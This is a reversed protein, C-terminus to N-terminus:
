PGGRTGGCAGLTLPHAARDPNEAARRRRPRKLAIGAGTAVLRPGRLVLSPAPPAPAASPPEQASAPRRRGGWRSGPWWPERPWAGAGYSVARSAVVRGVCRKSLDALREVARGLEGRPERGGLALQAGMRSRPLAVAAHEGARGGNLVILPAPGVRAICRPPWRRWRRSRRRSVVLVSADALAAPSGGLAESGADLVLPAHHRACDALAPPGGRRRPVAARPVRPLVPCTPWRAPWGRPRAAHRAGRRDGPARLWRPRAAPTAPAWSRPWLAAGGRDRRLRSHARVRGGGRAQRGRCGGARRGEGTARAAVARGCQAREGGAPEHPWRQPRARGRAARGLVQLAAPPRMRVAVRGGGVAVRARARAWGPLAERAGERPDAGAALALAGAEAATGALVKAYGVALLQLCVLGVLLVAPLLAVLEVTAQGREGRM